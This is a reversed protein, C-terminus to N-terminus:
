SPSVAGRVSDIASSRARGPHGKIIDKQRSIGIGTEGSLPDGRVWRPLVFILPGLVAIAIIRSSTALLAFPLWLVAAAGYLMMGHAAIILMARLLTSATLAVLCTLPDFGIMWAFIMGLVIAALSLFRAAPYRWMSGLHRRPGLLFVTAANLAMAAALVAVADDNRLAPLLRAPDFADPWTISWVLMTFLLMGPVVTYTALLPELTITARHGREGTRNVQVASPDSGVGSIRQLSEAMRAGSLLLSPAAHCLLVALAMTALVPIMM